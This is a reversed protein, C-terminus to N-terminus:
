GAGAARVDTLQRILGGDIAISYVNNDRVFYIERGDASFTPNTETDLTQTLRRSTGAGVDILYLDGGSSVVKRRGDPSLRGADVLPALSDMQADSVREPASGPTARVRFPKAPLRWDSGPELWTFYIWKGDASWRVNQPERGYVEPGRMMNKISFDFANRQATLPAVHSAAVSALAFCRLATRKM